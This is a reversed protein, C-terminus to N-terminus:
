ELLNNVFRTAGPRTLWTAPESPTRLPELWAKLTERDHARGLLRFTAEMLAEHEVDNRDRGSVELGGWFALVGGEIPPKRVWIGRIYVGPEPTRHVPPTPPLPAALVLPPLQSAQCFLEGERTSLVQERSSREWFLQFRPLADSLFAAGIGRVRYSQIMVNHLQAYAGRAESQKIEVEMVTAKAITGVAARAAGRFHWEIHRGASYFDWRLEKCAGGPLALLAVMGTKFGDGFGGACSSSAHKSTDSVGTDLARPHLPHTFRQEILLEDPRVVFACLEEEGCLVAVRARADDDDRRLHLAPHLEGNAMLQLHDITNQLFERLPPWLGAWSRMPKVTRACSVVEDQVSSLNFSRRKIDAERAKLFSAAQGGGEVGKPKARKRGAPKEGGKEGGKGEGEEGEEGGWTTGDHDRKRLRPKNTSVPQKPPAENLRPEATPLLAAKRRAILRKMAPPNEEDSSLVVVDEEQGSGGM